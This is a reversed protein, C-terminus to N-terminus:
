LHHPSLRSWVVVAGCCPRVRDCFGNRHATHAEAHEPEIALLRKYLRAAESLENLQQHRAANLLLQRIPDAAAAPSQKQAARRQQRNMAM